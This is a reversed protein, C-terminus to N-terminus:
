FKAVIREKLDNNEIFPIDAEIPTHIHRHLFKDLLKSQKEYATCADCMSKHMRLQVNEKYSLGDLSKKEILETAKRCSLMLINMLKKM